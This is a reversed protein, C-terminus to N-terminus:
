AYKANEDNFVDKKPTFIVNNYKKQTNKCGFSLTIM